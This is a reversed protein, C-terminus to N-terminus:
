VPPEYPSYPPRVALGLPPPNNYIQSLEKAFRGSWWPSGCGAASHVRPGRVGANLRQSKLNLRLNCMIVQTPEQEPEQGSYESEARGVRNYSDVFRVHRRVRVGCTVPSPMTLALLCLM